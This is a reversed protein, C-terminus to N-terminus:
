ELRLMLTATLDRQSAMAHALAQLCLTLLTIRVKKEATGNALAETAGDATAKKQLLLCGLTLALPSVAVTLSDVM